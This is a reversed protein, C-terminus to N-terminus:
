ETDRGAPPALVTQSATAPESPPRAGAWSSSVLTRLSGSACSASLFAELSRRESIVWSDSGPSGSTCCDISQPLCFM